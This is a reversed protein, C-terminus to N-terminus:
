CVVILSGLFANEAVIWPTVSPLAFAMAEGNVPPKGKCSYFLVLSVTVCQLNQLHILFM